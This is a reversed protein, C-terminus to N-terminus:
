RRRTDSCDKDVRTSSHRDLPQSGSRNRARISWGCNRRRYRRTRVPAM